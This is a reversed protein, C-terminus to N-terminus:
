CIGLSNLGTRPSSSPEPTRTVSQEPSLIYIEPHPTMGQKGSHLIRLEPLPCGQCMNGPPKLVVPSQCLIIMLDIPLVQVKDAQGILGDLHSIQHFLFKIPNMTCYTSTTVTLKVYISPHDPVKYDTKNQVTEVGPFNFCSPKWHHKEHFCLKLDELLVGDGTIHCIPNDSTGVWPSLKVAIGGTKAGPAGLQHRTITESAQWYTCSTSWANSMCCAGDLSVSLGWMNAYTYTKYFDSQLRFLSQADFSPQIVTPSLKSHCCFSVPLKKMDFTPLQAFKFCFRGRPFVAPNVRQVGAGDVCHFWPSQQSWIPHPVNMAALSPSQNHSFDLSSKGMIPNLPMPLACSSTLYIFGLTLPTAMCLCSSLIFLELPNPHICFLNLPLGPVTHRGPSQPTHVYRLLNPSFIWNEARCDGHFMLIVLYNWILLQMDKVREYEYLSDFENNERCRCKLGVSHTKRYKESMQRGKINNYFISKGSRALQSNQILQIHWYVNHLFTIFILSLVQCHLALFQGRTFPIKPWAFNFSLLFLFLQVLDQNHPDNLGREWSACLNYRLNCSFNRPFTCTLKKKKKTPMTMLSNM